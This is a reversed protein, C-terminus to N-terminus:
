RHLLGRDSYMPGEARNLGGKIQSTQLNQFLNRSQSTQGVYEQSSSPIASHSLDTQLMANFEESANTHEPIFYHSDGRSSQNM